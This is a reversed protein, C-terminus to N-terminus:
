SYPECSSIVFLINRFFTMMLLILMAALQQQKQGNSSGSTYVSRCSSKIISNVSPCQTPYRNTCFAGNCSSCDAVDMVPQNVEVCNLTSPDTVCCVCQCGYGYSFPLCLMIITVALIILKM